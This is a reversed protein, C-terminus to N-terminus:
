GTSSTLETSPSNLFTNKDVRVVKTSAWHDHLCRRNRTFICLVDILAIFSGLLGFLNLVMMIGDRLVLSFRLKSVEDSYHNVIRIKLLYKGISQGRSALLYSNLIAFVGFGVLLNLAIYSSNSSWFFGYIIYNSKLPSLWNQLLWNVVQMSIILTLTLDISRAFLRRWRSAMSQDKFHIAEVSGKPAKYPNLEPQLTEETSSM